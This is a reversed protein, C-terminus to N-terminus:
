TISIYRFICRICIYAVEILRGGVNSSSVKPLSPNRGGERPKRTYTVKLKPKECGAKKMHPKIGYTHSKFDYM